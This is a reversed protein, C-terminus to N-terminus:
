KIAYVVASYPNSSFKDSKMNHPAQASIDTKNVGMATGWLEARIQGILQATTLRNHQSSTQWKPRPLRQLTDSCQLAALHMYAYLGAIFTPVAAVSPERHVQAEGMGLLTKEDHFTVEVEWRWLYAQVIQAVPCNPDTCVLYAPERYLLRHSKTLRYALPRIIVLRMTRDGTGRWRVNDIVKVSFDHMNGAAHASVTQWPITNDQRVAEPTPLRDGYCRRRGRGSQGAPPNYLVADKRLRGILTTREPLQRFTTTNTYGGDVAVQLQRKYGAPTGDLATRLALLRKVAVATLRLEKQEQLYQKKQEETAKPGPKKASPCHQLDVPIARASGDGAPVALAIQMFRQAWVLNIRFKPGLPDRRWATGQVKRGRKYLLTDDLMAVVPQEPPLLATAGHIIPRWFAQAKLRGKSFLRYAATWDQHALGCTTLVGTITHRGLCTLAGVGLVRAREWTRQQTFAAKAQNWLTDFCAM